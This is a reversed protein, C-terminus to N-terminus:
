REFTWKIKRVIDAICIFSEYFFSCLTLACVAFKPYNSYKSQYLCRGKLIMKRQMKKQHKQSLPQLTTIFIFSQLYLITRWVIYNQKKATFREECFLFTSEDFFVLKEFLTYRVFIFAGPIIGVEQVGKIETNEVYQHRKQSFPNYWSLDTLITPVNM